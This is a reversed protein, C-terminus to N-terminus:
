PGEARVLTTIQYIPALDRTFAALSADSIREGLPPQGRPTWDAEVNYAPAHKPGPRIAFLVGNWVGQFEKRSYVRVGQSPDGVLIKDGRAGKIVVFHRYAGSSIVAIAPVKSAMLQDLTARYGDASFGRAELFLKMDLLSFGVERIKPQDGAAYMAKFIEAEGVPQGYHHHLLTALAASGCSYDYQQRVVTRFPIDRYTTVKVNFASGGDVLSIQAAAPAACGAIAGLALAVLSVRRRIVPLPAGIM